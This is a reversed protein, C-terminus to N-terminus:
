SSVGTVVPILASAFPEHVAVKLIGVDDAPVWTMLALPGTVWTLLEPLALM